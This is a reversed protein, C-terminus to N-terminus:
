SLSQRGLWIMFASESVVLQTKLNSLSAPINKTRLTKRSRPRAAFVWTIPGLKSTSRSPIRTQPILPLNTRTFIQSSQLTVTVAALLNRRTTTTSNSSSLLHGFILEPIFIKEKSHIEILAGRGNNYVSITNEVTDITVKLTNMNSDNIQASTLKLTCIVTQRVANVLIEDVIKFSGPVYKMERHVMRKNDTM